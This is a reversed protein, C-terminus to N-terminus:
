RKDHGWNAVIAAIPPLVAAVASMGVAAPISFLRVVFWALIILTLCSGMLLIYLKRNDYRRAM